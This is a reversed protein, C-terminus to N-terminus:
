HPLSKRRPIRDIGAGTAQFARLEHGLSILVEGLLREESGSVASGGRFRFDSVERFRAAESRELQPAFIHQPVDAPREGDPLRKQEDPDM